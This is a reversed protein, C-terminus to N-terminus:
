DIYIIGEHLAFREAIKRKTSSAKLEIGSIDIFLTNCLDLLQSTTLEFRVKAWRDEDLIKYKM